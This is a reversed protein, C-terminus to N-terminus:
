CSSNHNSYAFCFLDWVNKPLCACIHNLTHNLYSLVSGSKTIACQTCVCACLQITYTVNHHIVYYIYICLRTYFIAIRHWIIIIITNNLCVNMEWLGSTYKIHAMNWTHISLQTNSPKMQPSWACITIIIIIECIEHILDILM